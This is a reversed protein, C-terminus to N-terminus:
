ELGLGRVRRIAKGRRAKTQIVASLKHLSLACTGERNFESGSKNRFPLISFVEDPRSGGAQCPKGASDSKSQGV